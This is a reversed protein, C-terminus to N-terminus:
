LGAKGIGHHSIRAPGKGPDAEIGSTGAPLAPLGSACPTGQPQVLCSIDHLRVWGDPSRFMEPLGSMLQAERARMAPQAEEDDDLIFDDLSTLWYHAQVATATDAMRTLDRELVRSDHTYSYESSFAIPMVTQRGTYLYVRGDEYAVIRDERLANERIWNYAQAKDQRLRAAQQEAAPNPRYFQLTNWVATAALAALGASVVGASVREGMRGARLASGLLGALHKGEVWLGLCFLPVFLLLFRDMVTYNWLLLIGSYFGFVFHLPKWEDSRAQRLIGALAILMLPASLATAAFSTGIRLTPHLWYYAPTELFAGLNGRLMSLFVSVNPVCFKWMKPYSTYWALTQQWGPPLGAAQNTLGENSGGLSRRGAWLAPVLFPAAGLCVAAAQRFARRLLGAVVIGAVVAVGVGRTLVSLGALVGVLAALPLRGSARMAKDALLAAALALVMFLSDSMLMGSVILFTPLSACVTVMALAPWEGVGNLKRLMQFTLVLFGCSFLATLCVSPGLNAPFSPNWKWVWSLLWPYLVPYKTQPPNGPLSSLVYGRGEALAKASSFYLAEDRYKGFWNAPHLTALYLLFLALTGALCIWPAVPKPVRIM